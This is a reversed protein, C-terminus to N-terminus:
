ICVFTTGIRLVLTRLCLIREKRFFHTIIFYKRYGKKVLTKLPFKKKVFHYEYWKRLVRRGPSVEQLSTESCVGKDAACLPYEYWKRFQWLSLGSPERCTFTVTWPRPHSREMEMSRRCAYHGTCSRSLHHKERWRSAARYKRGRCM